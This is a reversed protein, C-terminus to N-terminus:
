VPVKSTKIELKECFHNTKRLIENKREEDAYFGRVFTKVIGFSV